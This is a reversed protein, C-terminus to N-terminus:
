PMLVFSSDTPTEFVSVGINLQEYSLYVTSSELIAPRSVSLPVKSHILKQYTLEFMGCEEKTLLQLSISLNLM